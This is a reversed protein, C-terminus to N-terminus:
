KDKKKAAKEAKTADRKMREMYKGADSKILKKMEAKKLDGIKTGHGRLWYLTELTQYAWEDGSKSAEHALEQIAANRETASRWVIKNAGAEKDGKEESGEGDPKTADLKKQAEKALRKILHASPEKLADLDIHAQVDPSLKAFALGATPSMDGSQISDLVDQDLEMIKLCRKVTHKAVGTEAAIRDPGWSEDKQMAVFSSGLEVYTLNTRGDESNEAIAHAKAKAEDDLDTRVIFPSETRGLETLAQFRRHGSILQYVDKKDTPRVTPPNILGAKAISARLANTDGEDFRPNFGKVVKIASLPLIVMEADSGKKKGKSSYKTANSM